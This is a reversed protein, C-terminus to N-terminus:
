GWPPILVAKTDTQRGTGIWLHVRWRRMGVGCRDNSHQLLVVVHLLPRRCVASGHFIYTHGGTNYTITHEKTGSLICKM